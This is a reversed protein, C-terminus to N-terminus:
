KQTIKHSSRTAPWKERCWEPPEAALGYHNRQAETLCRPVANRATLIYDRISPYIPWIRVTGDDSATLLNTGDHDFSLGQVRTTHGFFSFLFAGTVSDWMKVEGVGSGTVVFKGDPTIAASTFGGQDGLNIQESLANGTEVDWLRYKGDTSFTLLKGGNADKSIYRAWGKPGKLIIPKQRPAAVDWIRVTHDNSRSVIKRDDLAFFAQSVYDTHGKFKEIEKGSEFDLLVVDGSHAAREGAAVILKKGDASFNADGANMGLKWNGLQFSRLLKGTSSDWVKIPAGQGHVLITLFSKGDRAYRVLGVGAEIEFLPDSSSRNWVHVRGEMTSTVIQDDTPSATASVMWGRAQAFVGQEDNRRADWLRFTRFGSGNEISLFMKGDSAVYSASIWAPDKVYGSKLEALKVGANVDLLALSGRPQTSSLAIGTRQSFAFGSCGEIGGLLTAIKSGSRANWTDISGLSLGGNAVCSVLKETDQTFGVKVQTADSSAMKISSIAAGTTADTVTVYQGDDAALAEIRARLGTSTVTKPEWHELTLDGQANRVLSKIAAAPVTITKADRQFNEEYSSSSTHLERIFRQGRMVTSLPESIWGCEKVATEDPIAELALLVGDVPQRSNIEDEAKAALQRARAAIKQCNLVARFECGSQGLCMQPEGGKTVVWPFQSGSMSTVRTATKDLLERFPMQPNSSLEALLAKAYPSHQGPEGDPATEGLNSSYGILLQSQTDTSEVVPGRASKGTATSPASEEEGGALKPAQFGFGSCQPLPDSRCADFLAVKKPVHALKTLVDELAVVRQASRTRCNIDADTAALVNVIQGDKVVGMGHGAYFIVAEEAGKSYSVFDAIAKEFTRYDLNKHLKVEFGHEGLVKAIATADLAPNNLPSLRTYRENGIVLAVRKASAAEVNSGFALCLATLVFVYRLM